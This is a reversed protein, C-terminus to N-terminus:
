KLSVKKIQKPLNNVATNFLLNFLLLLVNHSSCAPNPFRYPITSWIKRQFIGYVHIKDFCFSHQVKIYYWLTKPYTLLDTTHNFNSSKLATPYDKIQILM